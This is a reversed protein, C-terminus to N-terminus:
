NDVVQLSAVSTARHAAGIQLRGCDAIIRVIEDSVTSGISQGNGEGKVSGWSGIAQHLHASCILLTTM